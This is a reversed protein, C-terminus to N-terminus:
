TLFIKVKDSDSSIGLCDILIAIENIKFKREGKLKLYFAQNTIGMKNALYEKKLGSDKIYVELLEMGVMLDGRKGSYTTNTNGRVIVYYGINTHIDVFLKNKKCFTTYNLQDFPKVSTNM